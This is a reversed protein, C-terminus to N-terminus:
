LRQQSRAGVDRCGGGSRATEHAVSQCHQRQGGRWACRQGGSDAGSRAHGLAGVGDDVGDSAGNLVGRRRTERGGAASVREV